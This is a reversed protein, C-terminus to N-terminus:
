VDDDRAGSASLAALASADAHRGTHERLRLSRSGALM